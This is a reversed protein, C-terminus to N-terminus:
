LGQPWLFNFLVSCVCVRVVVVVSHRTWIKKRGGEGRRKKQNSKCLISLNLENTRLGMRRQVTRIDLERPSGNHSPVTLSGHGSLGWGKKKSQWCHWNTGCTTHTQVTARAALDKFHPWFAFQGTSLNKPTLKPPILKLVLVYIDTRKNGTGGPM